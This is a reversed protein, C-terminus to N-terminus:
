SSKDSVSNKEKLEAFFLAALAPFFLQFFSSGVFGVVFNLYVAMPSVGIGGGPVLFFIAYSALIGFLLALTVSRVVKTRTRKGLFYFLTFVICVDFIVFALFYIEQLFYSNLYDTGSPNGFLSARISTVFISLFSLGMSSALAIVFVILWKKM